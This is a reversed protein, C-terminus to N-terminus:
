NHIEYMYESQIEMRTPIGEGICDFVTKKKSDNLELPFVM